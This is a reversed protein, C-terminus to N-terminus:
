SPPPQCSARIALKCPYTQSTPATEPNVLRALLMSTLHEGLEEVFVSISTLEPELISYEIIGSIIPLKLVFKAYVQEDPLAFPQRRHCRRHREAHPQVM